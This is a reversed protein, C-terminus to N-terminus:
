LETRDLTLLGERILVKVLECRGPEDLDGPLDRGTFPGGRSDLIYGVDQAVAVPLVVTKNHFGLRVTGDAADLQCRQAPRVRVASDLGVGALRDLDCLHGSLTPSGISALEDRSRDLLLDPTLAGALASVLEAFTGSVQQRWQGSDPDGPPLGRRFRADGAFIRRAAKEIVEAWMLSHVGITVHVSTRDNATADHVTGRPLYLLDGCALDVEQRLDPMSRDRQQGRVPLEVPTDYLRWHKTGHVQAVFVDHGDYHPAFGQNGAPTVYVNVALRASFLTGLTRCLEGLPPWTTEVANLILTAGNRHTEYLEELANRRARETEKTLTGISTLAGDQAIRLDGDRVHVHSLLHDVDALSLLERYYGPDDRAIHLPAREHYDRLFTQEDIPDLLRALDFSPRAATSGRDPLLVTVDDGVSDTFL